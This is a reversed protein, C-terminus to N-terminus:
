TLPKPQNRNLNTSKTSKSKPIEIKSSKSQPHHFHNTSKSKPHPNDNHNIEIHPSIPPPQPDRFEQFKTGPLLERRRVERPRLHCYLHRPLSIPRYLIRNTHPSSNIRTTPTASSLLPPPSDSPDPKRNELRTQDSQYRTSLRQPM